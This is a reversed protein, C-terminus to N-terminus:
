YRAIVIDMHFQRHFYAYLSIFLGTHVRMHRQLDSPRQFVKQCIDCTKQRGSRPLKKQILSESIVEEELVDVLHAESYHEFAFNFDMKDQPCNSCEYLANLHIPDNSNLSLHDALMSFKPFNFKCGGCTPIRSPGASNEADNPTSSPM